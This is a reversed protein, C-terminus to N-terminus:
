TSAPPVACGAGKEALRIMDIRLSHATARMGGEADREKWRQRALDYPVGTERSGIVPSAMARGSMWGERSSISFFSLGL